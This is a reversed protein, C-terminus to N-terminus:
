EAAHLRAPALSGRHLRVWAFSSPVITVDHAIILVRSTLALEELLSRLLARGADDLGVEPEDLIVLEPDELLARALLMRQREGGSLTGVLVALVDGDHAHARDRLVGLLGVRELVELWRDAKVEEHALLSLHWGITGGSTVFAGQPVYALKRRVRELDVSAVDIGDFSIGGHTREVLGVMALALTSKGAGNDGTLALGQGPKWTYNVDHPTAVTAGAHVISVGDLVITANRLDPASRGRTPSERDEGVVSPTANGRAIFAELVNRSPADAIRAQWVRALSWLLMLGLGGLVGLEAAHQPAFLARAWTAGARVPGALTLTAIALPWLGSLATWTSLERHRRAVSDARDLLAFAFAEQRGHSSKRSIKM